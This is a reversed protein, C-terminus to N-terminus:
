PGGWVSQAGTEGVFFMQVTAALAVALAAFRLATHIWPRTSLRANLAALFPPRGLSLLALFGLLGAAALSLPVVVEALEEHLELLDTEAVRDLLDEGSQEALYSFAAALLGALAALYTTTTRWRPVFALSALVATLPVFVVAAHVVLPHLPIGNVDM